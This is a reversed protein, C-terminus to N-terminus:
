LFYNQHFINQEFNEMEAEVLSGILVMVMTVKEGGERVGSWFGQAGEGVVGTCTCGHCRFQQTQGGYGVTSM